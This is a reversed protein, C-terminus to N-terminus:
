IYDKANQHTEEIDLKNPTKKKDHLATSDKEPPVSTQVQPKKSALCTSEQKLWTEL